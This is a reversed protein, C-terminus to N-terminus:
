IMRKSNACTEIEKREQALEPKLIDVFLHVCSQKIMVKITVKNKMIIIDYKKIFTLTGTFFDKKLIIDYKKYLTLHPSEPKLLITDCISTARM